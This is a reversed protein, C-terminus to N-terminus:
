YLVKDEGKEQILKDIAKLILEKRALIAEIEAYTLYEGVISKILEFNLGKIKEVFARPLESMLKPGEPHKETYILNQIFKKGTRFSRSHDILIMRWDKTILINNMHRDENAILNDFARQLYVARNWHMLKIPPTKINKETKQKLTIEYDVWIQCSGRNNHFRREVTPPVMNLELYNSLLYAAIEYKWGEIFGKMQGEPNKWLANRTVGDKELTLKWPSTVAEPGTLQEEKVVQAELLFAEWKPREAVEEPSFQSFLPRIFLLLGALCFFVLITKRM